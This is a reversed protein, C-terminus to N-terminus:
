GIELFGMYSYSLSRKKVLLPVEELTQGLITLGVCVVARGVVFFGQLSPSLVGAEKATNPSINWWNRMKRPLGHDRRRKM